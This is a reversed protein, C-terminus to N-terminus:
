GWGENMLGVVKCERGGEGGSELKSKGMCELDRLVRGSRQTGRLSAADGEVAVNNCGHLVM